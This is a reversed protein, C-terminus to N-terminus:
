LDRTPIRANDTPDPLGAVKWAAIAGGFLRQMCDEVLDLERCIDEEL